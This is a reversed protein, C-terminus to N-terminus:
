SGAAVSPRTRPLRVAPTIGGQSAPQRARHPQRRRTGPFATMDALGALQPPDAEAGSGIVLRETVLPLGHKEVVLVRIGNSLTKEVPTPIEPQHPASPPPPTTEIQTLSYRTALLSYLLLAAIMVRKM